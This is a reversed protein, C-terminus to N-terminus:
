EAGPLCYNCLSENCVENLLTFASLVSIPASFFVCSKIVRETDRVQMLIVTAM